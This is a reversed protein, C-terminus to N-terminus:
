RLSVYTHWSKHLINFAFAIGVVSTADSIADISKAELVGNEIQDLEILMSAVGEVLETKRGNKERMFLAYVPQKQLDLRETDAVFFSEWKFERIEANVSYLKNLPTTTVIKQIGSNSISIQKVSFLDATKCDSIILDDGVAFAPNASAYFTAYGRMPKILIGNEHSAHWLTIGSKQYLKIKNRLSVKETLHNYFPFDDSLKGCGAYGAMRIHRLLLQSLIQENEQLSILASQTLRSNEAILYIEFILSILFISLSLALMLEILTIGVSNRRKFM